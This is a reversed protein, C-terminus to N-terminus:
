KQPCKFKDMMLSGSIYPSYFQLGLECGDECRTKKKKKKSKACETGSRLCELTPFGWPCSSGLWFFPLKVDKINVWAACAYLFCQPQAWGQVCPPFLIFTVQDEEELLETKQSVQAYLWLLSPSHFLYHASSKLSPFARFCSDSNPPQPALQHHTPVIIASM